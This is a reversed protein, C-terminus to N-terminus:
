HYNPDHSTTIELKMIIFSEPSEKSTKIMHAVSVGTERSLVAKGIRDM